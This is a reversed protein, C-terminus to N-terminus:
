WWGRGRGRLGLIMMMRMMMLWRGGLPCQYFINNLIENGGCFHDTKGNDEVHFKSVHVVDSHPRYLVSPIRMIKLSEQSTVLILWIKQLTIQNTINIRIMSIIISHERFSYTLLPNLQVVKSRKTIDNPTCRTRYTSHIHVEYFDGFAVFIMQDFLVNADDQHIHDEFSRRFADKRLDFHKSMLFHLSVSGVIVNVRFNLKFAVAPFFFILLNFSAPFPFSYVM